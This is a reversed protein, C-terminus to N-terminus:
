PRRRVIEGISAKDLKLLEASIGAVLGEKATRPAAYSAEPEPRSKGPKPLAKRDVKGYPALPLEDLRVM